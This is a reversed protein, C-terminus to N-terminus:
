ATRPRYTGRKLSGSEIETQEQREVLAVLDALDWKHDTLGAAMAPTCKMLSQHRRCWNYYTMFIATMHGHNEIKKSFGNTLRTYRRIGMRITLNSREVHSTTIHEPDPDGWCVKIDMGTCRGPSYKGPAINKPGPENEYEKICQAYDCGENLDFYTGMANKYAHLGDTTIQIRNAFRPALTRMFDYAAGGDRQGCMWDVMLKSDPDLATWTWVDGNGPKWEKAFPINMKKCYCFAWIGDCQLRKSQLGNVHEDHFKRFATGFDVLIKLITPKSIGTMRVISNISNGEVLATIVQVREANTLKNMDANHRGQVCLALFYDMRALIANSM